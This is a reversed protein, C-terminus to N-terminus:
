NSIISGVAAAQTELLNEKRGNFIMLRPFKSPGFLLM